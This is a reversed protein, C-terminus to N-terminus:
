PTVEDPGDPGVIVVWPLEYLQTEPEVLIRQRLPAEDMDEMATVRGLRFAQVSEPWARDALVLRDGLKVTTRRDMEGILQGRGNQRLLVAKSFDINKGVRSLNLIFKGNSSEM